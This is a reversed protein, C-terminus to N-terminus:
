RPTFDRRNQLRPGPVRRWHGRDDQVEIKAIAPPDSCIKFNIGSPHEKTADEAAFDRATARNIKAFRAGQTDQLHNFLIELFGWQRFPPQRMDHDEHWPMFVNHPLQMKRGRTHTLAIDIGDQGDHRAPKIRGVTFKEVKLTGPPIDIIEQRFNNMIRKPLEPHEFDHRLSSAQAQVTLLMPRGDEPTSCEERDGLYEAFLRQKDYNTNVFFGNKQGSSLATAPIIIGHHRFSSLHSEERGTLSAHYLTLVDDPEM